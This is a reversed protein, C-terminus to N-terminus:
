FGNTLGEWFADPHDISDHIGMVTLALAAAAVYGWIGGHTQQTDKTNMEQVGFSELNKM